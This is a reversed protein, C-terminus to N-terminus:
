WKRYMPFLKFQRSVKQSSPKTLELDRAKAPLSHWRGQDDRCLSFGLGGVGCHFLRGVASYGASRHSSLSAPNSCDIRMYITHIGIRELERPLIRMILGWAGPAKGKGDYAFCTGAPIRFVTRLQGWDQWYERPGIAVWEVAKLESGLRLLLCVDGEGLRACVHERTRGLAEIAPIDKETAFCINFARPIRSDRPLDSVRASFIDSISLRLWRDLGFKSIVAFVLYYGAWILGHRRAFRFLKDLKSLVSDPM